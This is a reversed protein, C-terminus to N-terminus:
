LVDPITLQGTYLDPQDKQHEIQSALIAKWDGNYGDTNFHSVWNKDLILSLDSILKKTNFQFPLKLFKTHNQM